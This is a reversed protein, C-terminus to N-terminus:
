KKGKALGALAGCVKAIDDAIKGRRHHEKGALAWAKLAKRADMAGMLEDFEKEHVKCLNAWEKGDRSILPTEARSQCDKWTCSAM